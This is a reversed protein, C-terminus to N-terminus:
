YNNCLGKQTPYIKLHIFNYVNIKHAGLDEHSLSILEVFSDSKLYNACQKVGFCHKM